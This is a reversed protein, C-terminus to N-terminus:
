NFKEISINHENALKRKFLLANKYLNYAENSLDKVSIGLLCSVYYKTIAKVSKKQTKKGSERAKEINKNRWRQTNGRMNKAICKKCVSKTHKVYQMKENCQKCKTINNLFYNFLLISISVNKPIGNINMLLKGTKPILVIPNLLIEISKNRKKTYYRIIAGDERISYQENTGEIFKTQLEM